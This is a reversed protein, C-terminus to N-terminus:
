YLYIRSSRLSGLISKLLGKYYNDTGKWQFNWAENLLLSTLSVDKFLFTHLSDLALFQVSESSYFFKVQFKMFNLVYIVSIGRVVITFSRDVRKYVFVLVLLEPDYVGTLKNFEKCFDAINLQYQGLVPGLPPGPKASVANISLKIKQVIKKKDEVIGKEKKREEEKRREYKKQIDFEEAAV